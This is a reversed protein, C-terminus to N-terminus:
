WKRHQLPTRGPPFGLAVLVTVYEPTHPNEYLLDNVTEDGLDSLAALLTPTTGVLALVQAVDVNTRGEPTVPSTLGYTNAIFRELTVDPYNMLWTLMISRVLHSPAVRQLAEYAPTIENMQVAERDTPKAVTWLMRNLLEDTGTRGTMMYSKSTDFADSTLNIRTNETMSAISNYRNTDIVVANGCNVRYMLLVRQCASILGIPYVWLLFMTTFFASAIFWGSVIGARFVFSWLVALGIVAVGVILPTRATDVIETTPIAITRRPTWHSPRHLAYRNSTLPKRLSFTWVADYFAQVREIINM